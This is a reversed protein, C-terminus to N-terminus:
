EKGGSLLIDAIRPCHDSSLCAERDTIALYRLVNIEVNKKSGQKLFVHDIAREPEEAPIPCTIYEGKNEDYVAYKKLGSSNNKEEAIDYLWELGGSRLASFPDSEYFSNLDGGVILPLDKYKRLADNIFGLLQKANKVRAANAAGEPLKPDNYMFHTSIALFRKGTKIEEFAAWTLSKSNVDNPGDYLLYGSDFMNLREARYFLPTFNIPNGKADPEPNWVPVRTYGAEELLPTMDKNFATCYEQMGLVDPSYRRILQIEMKQRVPVPGSSLHPTAAKDPYWKYGYINYFMIRLMNEPHDSAKM